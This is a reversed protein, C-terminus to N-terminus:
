RSLHQQALAAPFAAAEVIVAFEGAAVAAVTEAGASGGQSDKGSADVAV